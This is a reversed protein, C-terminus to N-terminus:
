WVIESMKAIKRAYDLDLKMLNLFPKIEKNIHDKHKEDEALATLYGMINNLRDTKTM